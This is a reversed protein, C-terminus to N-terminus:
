FVMFNGFRSLDRPNAAMDRNYELELYWTHAVKKWLNFLTVTQKPDFATVLKSQLMGLQNPSWKAINLKTKGIGIGRSWKASVDIM